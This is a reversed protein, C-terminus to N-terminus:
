GSYVIKEMLGFSTSVVLDLYFWRVSIFRSKHSINLYVRMGKPRVVAGAVNWISLNRDPSESTKMNTYRSRSSKVVIQEKQQSETRYTPCRIVECPLRGSSTFTAAMLFM